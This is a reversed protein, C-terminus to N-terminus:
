FLIRSLEVKSEDLSSKRLKEEETLLLDKPISFPFCMIEQGIYNIMDLPELTYHDILYKGLSSLQKGALCPYKDVYSLLKLELINRDRDIDDSSHAFYLDRINGVKMNCIEIVLEAAQTIEVFDSFVRVPIISESAILNIPTDIKTMLDYIEIESYIGIFTNYGDVKYIISAVLHRLSLNTQLEHTILYQGGEEVAKKVPISLSNLILFCYDEALPNVMPFRSLYNGIDGAIKLKDEFHKRELAYVQCSSLKKTAIQHALIRPLNILWEVVQELSVVLADPTDLDFLERPSSSTLSIHEQFNWLAQTTQDDLFSYNKNTM